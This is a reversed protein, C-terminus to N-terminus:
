GGFDTFTLRHCCTVTRPPQNKIHHNLAVNLETLGPCEAAISVSEDTTYGGTYNVNLSTLNKCNAAIAETIDDGTCRCGVITKLRRCHKMVFILADESLGRTCRIDLLTLNPCCRAIMILSEDTILSEIIVLSTLNIHRRGDFMWRMLAGVSGGAAENIIRGRTAFYHHIFSGRVEERCTVCATEYAANDKLNLFSAAGVSPDIVGMVYLMTNAIM